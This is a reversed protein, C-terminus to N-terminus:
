LREKLEAIATSASSAPIPVHTREAHGIAAKELRWVGTTAFEILKQRSVAGKNLGDAIMDGTSCWWLKTLSRSTLSEKIACLQMVLSVETPTKIESAAIADFVSKADVVAQLQLVFQGQEELKVLSSAQPFPRLLESFTLAILRGIDIADSLANLEASFTSRTVRRQKRSYFELVHVAGGLEDAGFLSDVLAIIAGRIALGLVDEKRFASDSIAVIRVPNALICFVLASDKRRAWKAVRNLRLGHEARPSKAARQLAVVYVCIDLRTQTLWSLAGLLSQFQEILATPLLEDSKMSNLTAADMLKLQKVYPRQHLTITRAQKDTEHEIGCHTFNDFSEKLKGFETTLLVRIREIEGTEGTGKLDDVHTSLVLCLSGNKFWVWLNRDTHLPQGGAAKLSRELKMKWARPADKLGYICKLMRLVHRLGDFSSFGPLERFYAEYGKPPSFSVEREPTGEAAAIEKFTLGQLFAVTVDFCFLRWSRQAAASVIIRQAWRTATGAYTELDNAAMDEFGRVTMRSKVVRVGDVLKWKHVFRASLVNKATARDQLVFTKNEHLSAVEKRTGVEVEKWHAWVDAESLIDFNKEVMLKIKNSKNKAKTIYAVLVEDKEIQPAQELLKCMEPSFEIEIGDDESTSARTAFPGQAAITEALYAAQSAAAADVGTFPSPAFKGWRHRGKKSGFSHGGDRQRHTRLKAVFASLFNFDGEPITSPLSENDGDEDEDTSSDPLPDENFPLLPVHQAQPQPVQPAPATSSSSGGIQYRPNPKDKREDDKPPPFIPPALGPPRKIPKPLSASKPKAGAPKDNTPHPTRSRTTSVPSPIEPEYIRTTAQSRSSGQTSMPQPPNPPPHKPPPPPPLDMPVDDGEDHDGDDNNNDVAMPIPQPPPQPYQDDPRPDDGLMPQDPAAERIQRAFSGNASLFQVWRYTEWDDGFMARLNLPKTGEFAMTRYLRPDKSPWFLLVTTETEFQGPLLAVGHGIRCGVCRLGFVNYGTHVAAHLVEPHEAAAKSLQWGRATHIVAFIKIVNNISLAHKRLELLPPSDYELTIIYALARRCDALRVSLARGQWQADVFGHEINATSLVTAPGRWATLDKTKPARWLDIQDGPRLDLLEGAPRTQTAAARRIREQATGEVMQQLCIERVRHLHRAHTGGLGDAVQSVSPNEFEALLHPTRGLLATYPTQGHVVVLANHSFFCEGIIEADDVELGEAQLQTKVRHFTQRLIEHHREVTTAHAGVPRPRITCGYREFFVSAEESLLAGEKDSILVEPPGYVKFWCLALAPLIHSPTKGGIVMGASWRIAEDIVHLVVLTEIFLLDVQIVSNFSTSLRMTAQSRHGPRAWTRCVRCTEVVPKALEWVERPLGATKLLSELREAGCHWWRIHLKRLTKTIAAPSGTRLTRLATGLDWSSWDIPEKPVNPDEPLVQAPLIEDPEEDAVVEQPPPRPAGQERQRQEEWIDQDDINAQQQQRYWDMAEDDQEEAEWKDALEKLPNSKSTTPAATSIAKPTGKDDGPKFKISTSTPQIPQSSDEETLTRKSGQRTAATAWRCHGAIRSHHRSTSHQFKGCAECDWTKPKDQPFKCSASRTHRPDDRSAHNKCGPCVATSSSSGGFTAPYLQEKNEMTILDVIGAILAACLKAPWVQALKSLPGYGPLSGAVQQHAHNGSCKKELRRVLVESSAVFCTPKHMALGEPSLLGLECQDCRVFCVRDDMLLKQWCSLAWMESSWPNECIFHRKHQLQYTAIQAALEALPLGIDYSRKWAERAHVRNYHAWPGFATCPPGMVIVRPQFEDVYNRLAQVAAKSTLDYNSVLDFNRGGRLGRRIGIKCVGGAGGFIECFDHQSTSAFTSRLYVCASAFDEFHRANSSCAHVEDSGWCHSALFTGSYLNMEETIDGDSSSLDSYCSWTKAFYDRENEMLPSTDDGCDDFHEEVPPAKRRVKSENAIVDDAHDGLEYMVPQESHPTIKHVIIRVIKHFDDFPPHQFNASFNHDSELPTLEKWKRIRDTNCHRNGKRVMIPCSTM